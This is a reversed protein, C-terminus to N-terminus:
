DAVLALAEIELWLDDRYLQRVVLLTNPPAAEPFWDPYHRRRLEHFEELLDTRSLYTRMSVIDAFEAGGDRLVTRLNDYTQQFQGAFDTHISGDPKIGLQGSVVVLRRKELSAGFAHTYLGPEPHLDTPRIADYSM